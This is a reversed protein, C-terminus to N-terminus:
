NVILGFLLDFADNGLGKGIGSEADFKVLLILFNQTMQGPFHPKIMDLYHGAIPHPQNLRGVISGFAPNNVPVFSLVLM